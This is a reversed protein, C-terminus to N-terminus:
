ATRREAERQLDAAFREFPPGFDPLSGRIMPVLLGRFTETMKFETADGIPTLTFTRVGRFLPAAGDSWEMRRAPEFGSVRPRFVRESIPLRLELRRGPEIPGQLSAITSNWRPFDAADTLLAWLREPAANVEVLVSYELHFTSAHRRVTPTRM